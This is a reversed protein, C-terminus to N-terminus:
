PPSPTRRQPIREKKVSIFDFFVPPPGTLPAFTPRGRTSPYSRPPPSPSDPLSLPLRPSRPVAVYVTVIVIISATVAPRGKKVIVHEFIIVRLLMEDNNSNNNNNNNNTYASFLCEQRLPGRESPPPFPLPRRRRRRICVPRTKGACAPEM